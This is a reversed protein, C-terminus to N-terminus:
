RAALADMSAEAIAPSCTMGLGGPGSVVEVGPVIEERWYLHSGKDVVESYVGAWRRTAPPVPQRLLQAAKALLHEYIGEEVDFPFPESYDHTDGITLSGDVRQVLLLQAGAAVAVPSQPELGARAPLDFAPYYRMSDGDAVATAVQGPYPATELMQLRVPRTKPPGAYRAVLGSFTAGTCLFVWDGQHREGSDDLVARESLEVAARGPLWTYGARQSLHQTLAAVATRPEVVADARCRLAGVVAGSLEPNVARAAPADLLEWQRAGADSRERAQGMLSLEAENTAVILSGTPRFHAGAVPPEGATAERGAAVARGPTVLAGAAAIEEWLARGRLALELEAGGARAGVWVLGFNRVSAGRAVPERELHVVDFGRRRAMFAHMVGLIGGGVVIVRGAGAPRAPVAASV